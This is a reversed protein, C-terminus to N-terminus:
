AAAEQSRATLVDMGTPGQSTQEVKEFRDMACGTCCLAIASLSVLLRVPRMM